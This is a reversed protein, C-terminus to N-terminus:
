WTSLAFADKIWNIDEGYVSIVDFRCPTDTPYHNKYLFYKAGQIIKKQKAPTVAEEPAGFRNSKRYKVEIFCVYEGDKAILDIEGGHFYFNRALLKVNHETLYSVALEEKETGLSRKNQM